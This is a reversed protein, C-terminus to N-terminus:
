KQVGGFAFMINARTKKIFNTLRKKYEATGHRRGGEIYAIRITRYNLPFRQFNRWVTKDHKLAQLTAPAIELKQKKKLLARNKLAALGVKTMKGQRILRRMRALNAESWSSTPKRPSFRQAFKARDINKVQSDIWGFALAEEVADAYGLRPQGTYKRPYILWIEKARSHNKSLWARWKKRNSIYLTKGIKM